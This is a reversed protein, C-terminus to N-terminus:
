TVVRNPLFGGMTTLCRSPLFSEATVFVCAVVSNNSVDNEILDTNYWPFYAMLEEWFKKNIDANVFEYSHKAFLQNFASLILCKM